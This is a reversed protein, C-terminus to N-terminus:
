AVRMLAFADRHLSLLHEKIPQHESLKLQPDHEIIAFADRRAEDLLQADALLDAVKLEPM